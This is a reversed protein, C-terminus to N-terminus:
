KRPALLAEEIPRRVIKLDAYDTLTRVILSELAEADPAALVRHCRLIEMVLIPSARDLIVLDVPAGLIHELDIRIAALRDPEPDPAGLLVALDIDSDATPRGGAHSGFLLVAAPSLAELLKRCGAELRLPDLAGDVDSAQAPM